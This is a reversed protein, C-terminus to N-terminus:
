DETDDDEKGCELLVLEAELTQAIKELEGKKLHEAFIKLDLGAVAIVRFRPKKEGEGVKIRERYFIKGAM